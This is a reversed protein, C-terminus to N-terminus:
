LVRKGDSSVGLRHAARMREAVRSEPFVALYSEPTHGTRALARRELATARRRMAAEIVGDPSDLPAHAALGLGLFLLMLLVAAGFFLVPMKTLLGLVVLLMLPLVAIHWIAACDGAWRLGLCYSAARSGVGKGEAHQTHIRVANSRWTAAECRLLKVIHEGAARERPDATWPSLLHEAAEEAAIARAECATITANKTM